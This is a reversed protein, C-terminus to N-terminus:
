KEKTEVDKASKADIKKSKNTSIDEIEDIGEKPDEIKDQQAMVQDDNFFSPKPLHEVVEGNVDDDDPYIYDYYYYYYYEYDQNPDTINARRIFKPDEKTLISSTTNKVDYKVRHEPIETPLLLHNQNVRSTDIESRIADHKQEVHNGHQGVHDEGHQVGRRHSDYDGLEFGEDNRRHNPNDMVYTGGHQTSSSALRSDLLSLFAYKEIPNIM